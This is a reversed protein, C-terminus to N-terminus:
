IKICLKNKSNGPNICNSITEITIQSMKNRQRAATQMCTVREKLEIM